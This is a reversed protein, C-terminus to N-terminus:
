KKNINIIAFGKNTFYFNGQPFLSMTKIFLEPDEKMFIIVTNKDQDPSINKIDDPVIYTSKSNKLKIRELFILTQAPVPLGDVLVYPPENVIVFRETEEPLSNIFEGMDVYNQNFSSLVNENNAWKYFYKNFQLYGTGIALSIVFILFFNKILKGKLYPKIKTYTWYAGIGCLIYVAPIVGVVRLSHPIGEGSLFGPMLFILFWSILIWYPTQSQIDKQKIKEKLKVSCFFLGILFFIGVLWFLQPSGAYNHRWNGDGYINFMILHAGISKMFVLIPNNENLISVGAARGFFDGPNALFYVGIPLAVLFIAMGSIIFPKIIKGITIKRANQLWYLILIVLLLLVIFRYSIYTYFGLGLSIGSYILNKYSKKELGKLLFYIGFVAFLPVLIARFALRSFNVHWFSVALLFASVLSILEFGKIEKKLLQKSLLYVGFVTLIGALASMIRLSWISPGFIFFAIANLWMFLGERGNNDPYFIKFEAKELTDISNNGNVAADPYLGPPISSLQWLRFFSAILLIALLILFTKKAM